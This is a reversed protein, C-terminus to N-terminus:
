VVLRNRLTKLSLLKSSRGITSSDVRKGPSENQDNTIYPKRFCLGLLALAILALSSPEPVSNITITGSSASFTAHNNNTGADFDQDFVSGTPNLTITFTHSSLSMPGVHQLELRAFLFTDANTISVSTGTALSDGGILTVPDGGLRGSNWNAVDTDGLFVYPPPGSETQETSLQTVRFQLDGSGAIAGTLSFQYDFRGLTAVADGPHLGIWVDVFGLGGATLTADRVDILLDAQAFGSLCGALIVGIFRM